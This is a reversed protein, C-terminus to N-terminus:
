FRLSILQAVRTSELCVVHLTLVNHGATSASRDDDLLKLVAGAILWDFHRIEM